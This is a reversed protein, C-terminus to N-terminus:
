QNEAMKKDEGALAYGASVFVSLIISYILSLKTKM